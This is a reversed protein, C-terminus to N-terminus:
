TRFGVALAALGPFWSLAMIRLALRVSGSSSTVPLLWGALLAPVVTGPWMLASYAFTATGFFMPVTAFLAYATLLFRFFRATTATGWETAVTHYGAANDAVADRVTKLVEFAFMFLFILAAAILLPRTQVAGLWGGYLIPTAALLATCFNGVLVTSKLVYSYGIGMFLLTLSVIVGYPISTSLALAALIQVIAIRWATPSSVRGAPLPRTPRSIADARVDVIDNVVNVAAVVLTIVAGEWLVSARGAMPAETHATLHAGVVVQAGAGLSAVPRSLM